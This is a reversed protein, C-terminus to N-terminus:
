VCLGICDRADLLPTRGAIWRSVLLRIETEDAGDLVTGVFPQNERFSDEWITRIALDTADASIEPSREAQGHFSVLREAVRCLWPGLDAGQAAMAALRRTEPMRRMVVMHDVPDGNMVLDAVGIYVDPALRRNLEVERQCDAQRTARDRFDLFGFEVPKRLKYVRDGVFFLMSIHTEIAGVQPGVFGAGGRGSADQPGLSDSASIITSDQHDARVLDGMPTHPRVLVRNLSCAGKTPRLCRFSGRVGVAPSQDGRAMPGRDDARAASLLTM